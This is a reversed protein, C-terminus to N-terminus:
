TVEEEEEEEPLNGPCPEMTVAVAMGSRGLLMNTISTWQNTDPCYSEVSSLFGTSNFGGLIFIRGQYITVGHASRCHQMSAVPEWVDRTVSYREMSSLQTHGDYGGVAYLYSDVCVVGLGSRVTTMPALQHWTNSDPHFREATNWRNQGDFGGVVYLSGECGAVGAGLRAVSMPSVFVWRNAEPDYREVTNHHTSGQSGGVAYISGDVVAVGVRNRPTNLSAHQSWQNTMPNYCCLSSSETNNQLSLNRGGVTYLLGFLVCSGLGSCPSGMDALKLWINRGPDYAEMSSLSHQRYGGAVYILQTGRHPAPPLPKRLAMEQFIKSLFDRCSNAKSLIPCSQLQIKIFKPPLAYVHLANLLAHLYPARSEVDWRVWDTCAKYVESECLVKLSDQSILELLQCHSLSFFEEEKTVENFHTNIYERSRLHLETCGIEEAFRAIGIVNAPELNKTLYDCCAKAVDEIQYRMAALLLHLVCKEGVTIRSTYAFDILRGVVLPCVDRLTVESAHCEKFSSTFMAKFYPSCSALVVKHVKFDVTTDKYTVHLTIDCLMEHRRFDEMAQLARSPHTEITYDLYGSGRMSPVAIASFDADRTLRKKRPCLMGETQGIQHNYSGDM